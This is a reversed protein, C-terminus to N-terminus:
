QAAIGVPNCGANQFIFFLGDNNVVKDVNSVSINPLQTPAAIALEPERMLPDDTPQFSTTESHLVRFPTLLHPHNGRYEIFWRGPASNM